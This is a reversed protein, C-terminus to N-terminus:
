KGIYYLFRYESEALRLYELYDIKNSGLKNNYYVLNILGFIEDYNTLHMINSLLGTTDSPIQSCNQILILIGKLYTTATGINEMPIDKLQLM